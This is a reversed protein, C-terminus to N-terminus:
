AAEETTRDDTSAAPGTGTRGHRGRRGRPRRPPALRLLTLTIMSFGFLYDEVPIDWPVRLGTIQDSTTSSSRRRSSPSGATSSCTSSTSSAGDRDLVAGHPLRRHAALVVEVAVTGLVSLVALLTYEPMAAGGRGCGGSCRASPRTPSCAASRSSSSSCSSRSPCARRAPPHRDHLGRQVVLARAVIGLVDWALFVVLMPLLSSCSAVHGVTSGPACSSSSRCPSSCAARWSCSTSTATTWPPRLGGRRRARARRGPAARRAARRALLAPRARARRAAAGARRVVALRHPTGRAGRRSFQAWPVWAAADVEEPDPATTADDVFGVFVPCLEHEVLGNMVARYRFDPLVLRLDRVDVGLESRARRRVAEALDEGPRPHGCVTNTVM